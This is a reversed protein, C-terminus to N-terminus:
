KVDFFLDEKIRKIRDLAYNVNKASEGAELLYVQYYNLALTKNSNYEEFTTAIEFLVEYDAPDLENSKKLAEISEEFKREQGYIQGLHHYMDALFDPISIDIASQMYYEAEVLEALKKHCLSLYFLVYPDNPNVAECEALVSIALKEEKSFYSCVGYNLLINYLSDGGAVFYQEYYYKAQEYNKNAFYYLAKEKFFGDDGPFEALGADILSLIKGVDEKRSYLRLLNFYSSYDRPNQAIVKEYLTRAEDKKNVRYASFALQKNWYVNSSDKQYINSYVRYADKFKDLSIYNRGLKAALTLNNKDIDVAKEFFPEADRYNGLVSFGEAMETLFEPNEPELQLAESFATLAEQYNQLNSLVLGKKYYLAANQSSELQKDIMSLAQTYNKNLVMLDIKDQSFSLYSILIFFPILIKTKM